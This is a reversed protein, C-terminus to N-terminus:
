PPRFLGAEWSFRRCRERNEQMPFRVHWLARMGWQRGTMPLRAFRSKQVFSSRTATSPFCLHRRDKQHWLDRDLDDVLAGWARQALPCALRGSMHYKADACGALVLGRRVRSSQRECTRKRAPLASLPHFHWLHLCIPVMELPIAAPGFQVVNTGYRVCNLSDRGKSM